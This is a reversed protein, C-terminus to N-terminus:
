ARCPRCAPPPRSQPLTSRPPPRRPPVPACALHRARSRDAQDQGHHDRRQQKIRYAFPDLLPNVLEEVAGAVVIALRQDFKAALQTRFGIEVHHQTRHHVAQRAGQQHIAHRNKEGGALRRLKHQGLREAHGLGAAQVQVEEARGPRLGFGSMQEQLVHVLHRALSGARLLGDGPQVQVVVNGAAGLLPRNGEKAQALRHFAIEQGAFVNFQQFGQGAVDADGDLIRTQVGREFLLDGLVFAQLVEVFVDHLRDVHAHHRHVQRVADFGPVRLHFDHVGQRAPLRQGPGQAFYKRRLKHFLEVPHPLVRADVVQVLEAQGRRRALAANHVDGDRRQDGPLEVHDPPQDDHVVDGFADLRSDCSECASM